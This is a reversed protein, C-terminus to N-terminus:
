GFDSRDAIKIHKKRTALQKMGEELSSAAKTLSKKEKPASSKVKALETRSCSIVEEVGCNFRYQHEHGKKCFQYSTNGIKRAMEQSTKEQAANVERKVENISVIFNQEVECRSQHIEQVLLDFDRRSINCQEICVILWGTNCM